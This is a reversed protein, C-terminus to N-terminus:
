VPKYFARITVIEGFPGLEEGHFPNESDDVNNEIFAGAVFLDNVTGRYGDLTQLIADVLSQTELHTTGNCSLGFLSDVIGGTGGSFVDHDANSRRYIIYPDDVDQPAHQSFIRTGVIDTVASSGTLITYLAKGFM